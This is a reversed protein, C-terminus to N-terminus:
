SKRKLIKNLFEEVAERVVEGDQSELKRENIKKIKKSVEEIEHIGGDTQKVILLNM